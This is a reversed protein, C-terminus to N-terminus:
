INKGAFQGGYSINKEIERVDLNSSSKIFTVVNIRQKSWM